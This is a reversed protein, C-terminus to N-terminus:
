CRPRTGAPPRTAWPSGSGPWWGGAWPSRPGERICGVAAGGYPHVFSVVDGPQEGATLVQHELTQTWQYYGALRQAVASANTLGVLTAETVEVVNDVEAATM